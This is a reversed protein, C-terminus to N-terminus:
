RGLTTKHALLAELPVLSEMQTVGILVLGLPECNDILISYPPTPALGFDLLALARAVSGAIAM